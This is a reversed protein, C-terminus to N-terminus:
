CPSLCLCVRVIHACLADYVPVTPFAVKLLKRAQSLCNHKRTREVERRTVRFPVHPLVPIVCVGCIEGNVCLPLLLVHQTAHAGNPGVNHLFTLVVGEGTWEYRLWGATGLQASSWGATRRRQGSRTKMLLFVRCSMKWGHVHALPATNHHSKTKHLVRAQKKKTQANM